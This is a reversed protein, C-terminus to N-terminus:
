AHKEGKAKYTRSFNMRVFGSHKHKEELCHSKEEDTFHKITSKASQYDIGYEKEWDKERIFDEKQKEIYEIWAFIVPGHIKPIVYSKDCMTLCKSWDTCFENESLVLANDFTPNKNDKCDAVPGTFLEATKHDERRIEGKFIGVILNQSLAIKHKKSEVWEFNQNEYYMKTTEGSKHTKKIQREFEQKGKLYEQYNHSKRFSRHDISEIRNGDLDFIEYKKYFSTPSLMANKLFASKVVQYLKSIGGNTNVYQLAKTDDSNKYVDQFKDIYLDLYKKEISSNKLALTINTNSKHKVIDLVTFFGLDDAHLSYNGNENKKVRIDKIVEQNAGTKILLLLYLPYLENVSPYMKKDISKLSVNFYKGIWSRIDKFRSGKFKEFEKNINKSHPYLPYIQLHWYLAYKENKLDINEGKLSLEKLQSVREKWEKYGADSMQALRSKTYPVISADIGYNCRLTIILLQMFTINKTQETNENCDFLTKLLNEQSMFSDSSYEKQWQVYELYYKKFEEYEKKICTELQYIISSPIAKIGSSVKSSKKRRNNIDKKLQTNKPHSVGLTLFFRDLCSVLQPVNINKINKLKKLYEYTMISDNSSVDSVDLIVRKESQLWDIFFSLAALICTTKVHNMKRKFIKNLVSRILALYVSERDLLERNTKMPARNYASYGLRVKEKHYEEKHKFSLYVRPNLSLHAETLTTMIYYGYHEEALVPNERDLHVRDDLVEKKGSEDFDFKLVKKQRAM